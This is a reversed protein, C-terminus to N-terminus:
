FKPDLKYQELTQMVADKPSLIMNQKPWQIELKPDNWIIGSEGKPNWYNDVKYMVDAPKQELVCFGHAFGPPVWFWAPNDGDLEVSLHEGFTNSDKRIDVVVDFIRGSLATILKGQPLDWQYHLGRLVGPASRSFNDQVLNKIGLDEFINKKFREVFFGRDDKFSKLQILKPGKIHFEKIDM